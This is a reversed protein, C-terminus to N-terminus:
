PLLALGYLSENWATWADATDLGDTSSVTEMHHTAPISYPPLYLAPRSEDTAVINQALSAPSQDSLGRDTEHAPSYDLIELRNHGDLATAVALPPDVEPVPGGFDHFLVTAANSLGGSFATVFDGMYAGTTGNYRKVSHTSFSAVYLNGDPGFVLGDGFDLGGSGSPVFTDIFAGTTGNYRKVSDNNSSNIYLNGDPGWTFGNAISLGGSGSPIFTDIYAGTTEDYRIVSNNKWDSVYLHGDPGFRLDNAGYLGGSGSVVFADMFVGTTGNYRLVSGPWGGCSDTDNSVYLNGDPGFEMGEARCLGGSGRHVFVDILKGTVGNYRVVNGSLYGDIYLNGDPGYVMGIAPGDVKGRSFTGIFAGTTGNYRLVLDNGYSLVLLDTSPCARDELPELALRLTHCRLSKKACAYRPALRSTSWRTQHFWSM